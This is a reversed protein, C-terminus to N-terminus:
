IDTSKEDSNRKYVIQEVLLLDDTSLTNLVDVGIDRLTRILRAREIGAEQEPTIPSPLTSIGRYPPDGIFRGCDKRVAFQQHGGQVQVYWRAPTERVIKIIVATRGYFMGLSRSARWQDGVKLHALWNLYAESSTPIM